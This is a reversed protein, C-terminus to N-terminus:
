DDTAEWCDVAVGDNGSIVVCEINIAPNIVKTAMTASSFKRWSTFLVGILVVVLIWVGATELALKWTPKRPKVIAM